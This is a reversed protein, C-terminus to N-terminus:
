TTPCQSYGCWGGNCTGGCVVGSCDDGCGFGALPTPSNDATLLNMLKEFNLEIM